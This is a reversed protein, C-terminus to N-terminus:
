QSYTKNKYWPNTSESFIAFQCKTRCWGVREDRKGCRSDCMGILDTNTTHSNGLESKILININIVFMLCSFRMLWYRYINIKWRNLTLAENRKALCTWEIYCPKRCLETIGKVVHNFTMSIIESLFCLMYFVPTWKKIHRWHYSKTSM